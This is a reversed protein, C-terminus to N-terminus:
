PIVHKKKRIINFEKNSNKDVNYDYYEKTLIAMQEDEEFTNIFDDCVSCHFDTFDICSVNKITESDLWNIEKDQKVYCGDIEGEKNKNIYCKKCINKANELSKGQIKISQTKKLNDNINDLLETTYEGGYLIANKKTILQVSLDTGNIFKFKKSRKQFMDYHTRLFSENGLNTTATTPRIKYEIKEEEGNKKLIAYEQALFGFYFVILLIGLLKFM